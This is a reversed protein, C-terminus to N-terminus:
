APPAWREPPNGDEPDTAVDVLATRGSAMAQEIAGRIEGPKEVRISLAGMNEAIAAFNTENFRWLASSDTGPVKAYAVDDGGRDQIYGSNNNVVVTVPVKCRVATEIEGMHYWFGGDGTFCVVRQDPLAVQAGISAPLAWGLSGACRLLKQGPHNLDIMAATWIGAHGTDAVLVSKEDLVTTLENCLRDPIIPVADSKARPEVATRWESVLSKARAVWDSRGVPKSADILHRLTAKADGQLGVEIPYSRGLESPDIDIQVIRTGEAPITWENTIQSGTHSGIFLVLDAEHVTRNACVRSYTGVIGVALEHDDPIAGKANLGTAVPISLKEALEVVEAQAQSATVGGGAVIVPRKASALAKAAAAVSDPSPEPRFAPRSTFQEEVIFDLDAESEMIVNASIGQLDLHVPATAGSTAERFAQRLMRPFQELTEVLGSFKTVPDFLGAHSIEQYANRYQEMPTKRGTLAIVPSLGLFADQLGAALNAAGVSQAICVGPRNSARAYGDAMYAAAKEGHPVISKVGIASAEALALNAVSPAVFVHTVGYAKLSNAFFKAGTTQTM